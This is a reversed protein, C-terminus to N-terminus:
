NQNKIINGCEILEEITDDALIRDTIWENIWVKYPDYDHEVCYEIFKDIDQEAYENALQQNYQEDISYQPDNNIIMRCENNLTSYYEDAIAEQWAKVDEANLKNKINKNIEAKVDDKLYKYIKM